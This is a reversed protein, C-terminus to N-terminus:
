CPARTHVRVHPARRDYLYQLAVLSGLDDPLPGSFANSNLISRVSTLDRVRARRAACHCVAYLYELVTMRSMCPLLPGDFENEFAARHVRPVNAGPAARM